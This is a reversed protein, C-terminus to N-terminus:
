LDDCRERSAEALIERVMASYYAAWPRPQDKTRCRTAANQFVNIANLTSDSIAEEPSILPAM